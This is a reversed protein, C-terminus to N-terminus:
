KSFFIKFVPVAILIGVVIFIWWTWTPIWIELLLGIGVGGLVKATVFLLFHSISLQKFKEVKNSYWGMVCAERKM